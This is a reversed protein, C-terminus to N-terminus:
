MLFWIIAVIHNLSTLVISSLPWVIAIIFLMRVQRERVPSALSKRRYLAVQWSESFSSQSNEKSPLVKWRFTPVSKCCFLIYLINRMAITVNHKGFFSLSAVKLAYNSPDKIINFFILNILKGLYFCKLFYVNKYFTM